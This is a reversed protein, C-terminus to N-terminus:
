QPTLTITGSVLQQGYGATIDTTGGNLTLGTVNTVGTTNRLIVMIESYQATTIASSPSTIIGDVLGIANVYAAAANLANQIVTSQVAGPSITLAASVNVSILQPGDVAFPMGLPRNSEVASRVLALLASSPGTSQGLSNVIVAFFNPAPNGWQDLMDGIQYTLGNEADQVAASVGLPTAWKGSMFKQFRAIYDADNEEDIGTNTSNANTVTSVGLPAPAGDLSLIQTITGSQVNGGTGPIVAQVTADVYQQGVDIVYAKLSANYGPQTTDAIVFFQKGGPTQVYTGGTNTTPDYASIQLQSTAPSNAGFTVDLQAPVASERPFNFQACFSDVDQSNVGPTTSASSQLRSIAADYAIQQQLDIILAVIANQVSGLSSGVGLNAKRKANANYTTAFRQQIQQPTSQALFAM